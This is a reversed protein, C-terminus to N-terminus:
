DLFYYIYNLENKKLSRFLESCKRSCFHHEARKYESIIRNSIKGCFDCKFDIYKNARNKNLKERLGMDFLNRLIDYNYNMYPVILKNNLYIKEEADLFYNFSHYNFLRGSNKIYEIILQKCISYNNIIDYEWLYLIEKFFKNKIFTHKSKDNIIVKLQNENKINSYFRSDTHWYTGMVEIYLNFDVLYNDVTFYDCIYENEFKINLDNLIQNTIIQPKSNTYSIKGNTLNNLMVNRMKNKFDETQIFVKTQYEIACNKCCFHHDFTDLKYRKDKFENGCWDCVFTLKGGKYNPNNNGANNESRWKGHCKNSCFNSNDKNYNKVEYENGCYKCINKVRNYLSSNEGSKNASIWKGQCDRSCFNNDKIQSPRRRIEKGCFKCEVIIQKNRAKGSCENSCYKGYGRNSDYLKIYFHKGCQQCLKKVQKSNDKNKINFEEDKKIYKCNDCCDKNTLSKSNKKVYNKYIKNIIEDCYDCKVKVIVRSGLMLDLVDVEFEDDKKTFKYGKFEYHKRNNGSWKIKVIQELLM